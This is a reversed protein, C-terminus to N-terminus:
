TCDMEVKPDSGVRSRLRRDLLDMWELRLREAVKGGLFMNRMKAGGSALFRWTHPEKLRPLSQQLTCYLM